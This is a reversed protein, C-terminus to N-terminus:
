KATGSWWGPEQFLEGVPMTFGPLSVDDTLQDTEALRSQNGSGNLVLVAQDNQDVIWVTEVGIGWYVEVKSNIINRRDTSSVIEVVLTPSKETFFQDALDFPGVDPIVALAPLFVSDPQRSVVLGQDFCAASSLNPNRQRHEALRKSLNLVSTGHMTDPPSLQVIEGAILESWRGDEPLEWRQESFQEATLSM